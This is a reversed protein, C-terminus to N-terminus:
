VHDLYKRRQEMKKRETRRDYHKDLVETSVNARASVIPEPVDSSLWHTIPGRRVARPSLSSPGKSAGTRVGTSECEDIIRNHM